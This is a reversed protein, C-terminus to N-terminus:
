EETKRKRYQVMQNNYEIIDKFGKEYKQWLPKRLISRMYKIDFYSFKNVLIEGDSISRKFPPSVSDGDSSDMKIQGDVTLSPALSALESEDFRELIRDYPYM